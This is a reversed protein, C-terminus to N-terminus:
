TLSYTSPGVPRFVRMEVTASATDTILFASNQAKTLSVEYGLRHLRQVLRQTTQEPKIQDFHNPGLDRYPQNHKVMQYASVAISHAVAVVARKKGCRAAIRRFLASLYTNNTKSAAWAAETLATRLNSPALEWRPWWRGLWPKM